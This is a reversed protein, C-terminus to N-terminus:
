RPGPGRWEGCSQGSRRRAPSKRGARAEVAPGRCCTFTKQKKKELLVHQGEIGRFAKKLGRGWGAGVRPFLVEGHGAGGVSGEREEKGGPQGMGGKGVGHLFGPGIAADGEIDNEGQRVRLRQLIEDGPLVIRTARFVMVPEGRGLEGAAEAGFLGTKLARVGGQLAMTEGGRAGRAAQVGGAGIAVEGAGERGAEVGGARGVAGGAQHAVAGRGQGGLEGIQAGFNVGKRGVGGM